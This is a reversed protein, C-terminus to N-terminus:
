DPTSLALVAYVLDHDWAHRGSVWGGGLESALREGLRAAWSEGSQEIVEAEDFGIYRGVLPQAAKYISEKAAFVVTVEHPSPWRSQEADGLCRRTVAALRADALLPAIDVGLSRAEASVVACAVGSHHSISGTIGDPWAPAGDSTRGLVGGDVVGVLRMAEAAALRGALFEARRASDDVMTSVSAVDIRVGACGAPLAVPLDDFAPTM